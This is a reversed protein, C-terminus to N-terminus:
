TSRAYAPVHVQPAQACEDCDGLQTRDRFGRQPQANCLGRQRPLDDIKFLFEVELKEIADSTTQHERFLALLEDLITAVHQTVHCQENLLCIVEATSVHSQEFDRGGWLHYLADEGCEQATVCRSKGVHLHFQAFRNAAVLQGHQHTAVHVDADPQKAGNVGLTVECAM